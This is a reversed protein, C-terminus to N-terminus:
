CTSILRLEEKMLRLVRLPEEETAKKWCLKRQVKMLEILLPLAHLM